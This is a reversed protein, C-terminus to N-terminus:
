KKGGRLLLIGGAIIAVWAWGPLGSEEQGAAAAQADVDRSLFPVMSFDVNEFGAPIEKPYGAGVFDVPEQLPVGMSQDAYM